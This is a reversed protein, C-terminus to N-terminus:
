TRWDATNRFDVIADVLDDCGHRIVDCVPLGFEQRVREREAEAESDSVAASNM